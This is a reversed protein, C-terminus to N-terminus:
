IRGGFFHELKYSAFLKIHNSTHGCHDVYLDKM